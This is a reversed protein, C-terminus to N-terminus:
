GEGPFSGGHRGGEEGVFAAEPMTAPLIRQGQGDAAEDLGAAPQRFAGLGLPAQLVEHFDGAKHPLEGNRGGRFRAALIQQPHMGRGIEVGELGGRICAAALKAQAGGEALAAVLDGGQRRAEGDSRDLRHQRALRPVGVGQRARGAMM